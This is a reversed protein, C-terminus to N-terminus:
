NKTSIGYFPISNCTDRGLKVNLSKVKSVQHPQSYSYLPTRLGWLTFKLLNFFATEYKHKDSTNINYM